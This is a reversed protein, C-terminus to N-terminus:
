GIVELMGSKPSAAIEAGVTGNEVALEALREVDRAYQRDDLRHQEGDDEVLVRFRESVLDGIAIQAGFRDLIPLNVAPEPLGAHVITLRLGSEKPSDIGARMDTLAARLKRVGRRGAFSRIAREIDQRSCLPSKRSLLRDGAIVLEDLTLKTALQRWAELERATRLTSPASTFHDM